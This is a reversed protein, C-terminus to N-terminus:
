TVWGENRHLSSFRIQKFLISFPSSSSLITLNNRRKKNVFCLRYTKEYTIPKHYSIHWFSQIFLSKERKLNSQSNKTSFFFITLEKQLTRMHFAWLNLCLPIRNKLYLLKLFIYIFLINSDIKFIIFQITMFKISSPEM